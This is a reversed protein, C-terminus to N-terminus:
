YGFNKLNIILLEEADLPFKILLNRVIISFTPFAKGWGAVKNANNASPTTIIEPTALRKLMSTTCGPVPSVILGTLRRLM